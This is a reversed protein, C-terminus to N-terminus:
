ESVSALIGFIRELITWAEEPAASEGDVLTIRNAKGQYEVTISYTFCDACSQLSRPIPPWEFFGAAEIEALLQSVEDAPIRAEEDAPGVVRGDLTITWHESIGAIGGSRDFTIVAGSSRSGPTPTAAPTPTQDQRTPAELTTAELTPTIEAVSSCGTTLAIALFIVILNLRRVSM